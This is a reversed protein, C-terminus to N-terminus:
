PLATIPAGPDDIENQIVVQIRVAQIGADNAEIPTMETREPANALFPSEGNDGVDMDMGTTCALAIRVLSVWHNRTGSMDCHDQRAEGGTALRTTVNANVTVKAALAPRWHRHVLPPLKEM